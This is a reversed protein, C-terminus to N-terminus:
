ALTVPLLVWRLIGAFQPTAAKQRYQGAAATLGLKLNVESRPSDRLYAITEAAEIAGNVLFFPYSHDDSDRQVMAGVAKYELTSPSDVVPM